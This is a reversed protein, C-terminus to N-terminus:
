SKQARSIAFLCPSRENRFLTDVVFQDGLESCWDSIAMKEPEGGEHGPYAIVTILGGCAILQVAADLGELTTDKRTIVKKDHGPLYGLNFMVSYINDRSNEDIHALMSEHGAQILKVRELLGAQALRNRASELATQQIDFGYVRGKPGVREALFATDHGNGVTADIATGGAPLHEAVFKHAESVLSIYATM